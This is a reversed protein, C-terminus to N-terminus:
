TYSYHLTIVYDHVGYSIGSHIGYLMPKFMLFDGYVDAQYRYVLDFDGYYYKQGADNLNGKFIRNHVPPFILNLPNKAEGPNLKSDSGCFAIASVRVHDGQILENALTSHTVDDWATLRCNYAEGTTVEFIVSNSTDVDLPRTTNSYGWMYLEANELLTGSNSTTEDIYLRYSSGRPRLYTTYVRQTTGVLPYGGTGSLVTGSAVTTYGTISTGTWEATEVVTTFTQTASFYMDSDNPTEINLLETTALGTKSVKDEKFYMYAALDVGVGSVTSSVCEADTIVDQVDIISRLDIFYSSYYNETGSIITHLGDGVVNHTEDSVVTVVEDGPQSLANSIKVTKPLDEDDFEYLAVSDTGQTDAYQYAYFKLKRIGYYDSDFVGSDLSTNNSINIRYYRFFATNSFFIFKDLNDTNSGTFLTTWTEQDDSATITFNGIFFKKDSIVVTELNDRLSSCPTGDTFSDMLEQDIPKTERITETVCAMSLATLRTSDTFSFNLYCEPIEVIVSTAWGYTRTRWKKYVTIEVPYPDPFQVGGAM